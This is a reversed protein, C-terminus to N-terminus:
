KLSNKAERVKDKLDKLKGKWDEIDNPSLKGEKKLKKFKAKKNNYREKATAYDDRSDQKEELYSELNKLKEELKKQNNEAEEKVKKQKEIAKELEEYQKDYAKKVEEKEKILNNISAKEAASLDDTVDVGNSKIAKKEVEYVKGDDTIVRQSSGCSAFVILLLLIAPRKLIKM